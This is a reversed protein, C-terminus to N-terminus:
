SYQCTSMAMMHSRSDRTSSMLTSEAIVISLVIYCASIFVYPPVIAVMIHTCKSQVVYGIDKMADVDTMTVDDDLESGLDSESQSEPKADCKKEPKVLNVIAVPNIYPSLERKLESGEKKEPTLLTVPEQLTKLNVAFPHPALM